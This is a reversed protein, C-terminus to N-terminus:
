GLFFNLIIEKLSFSKLKVIVYIKDWLIDCVETFRLKFIFLNGKTM